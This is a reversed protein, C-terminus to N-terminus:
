RDLGYRVFKAMMINHCGVNFAKSFHLDVSGTMENYFAILGFLCLKGETLGHQNNRIVNVIVPSCTAELYIQEMTKWPSLSCQGAQLEAQGLYPCSLQRKGPMLFMLQWLRKSIGGYPWSEM